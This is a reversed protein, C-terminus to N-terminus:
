EGYLNGVEGPALARDYIRVDDIKGKFFRVLNGRCGITMNANNEISCSVPDTIEEILVNNLYNRLMDGEKVVVIHLFSDNAVVPSYGATRNDCIQGDYRAYLIRDEHSDDALTNLYSISFPYGAADGNWKRLIDNIGDHPEQGSAIEVWLSISYDGSLNLIANHPIEIHADLGDFFYSANADGKRDTTLVAEHVAGHLGNETQDEANGNFPYWAVLGESLSESLLTIVLPLGSGFQKLDAASFTKEYSLYGDKTVTITYADFGDAIRVANTVAQLDVDYLTEVESTVTARASTLEFNETLPDYIMVGAFFTFTNVINLSFTVYGFDLSTGGEIAIVEPSIKTTADRTVSFALPLPDAILHALASGEMPSAYTVAGNEDVVLFETLAFDGTTLSVPESLYAEGFRFVTLSKREYMFNGEADKVSVLFAVVDNKTRGGSSGTGASFSFELKGTKKAEEEQECSLIICLGIVMALLPRRTAM